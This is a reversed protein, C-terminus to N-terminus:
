KIQAYKGITDLALSITKKLERTDTCSQKLAHNYKCAIEDLEYVATPCHQRIDDLYNRGSTSQGRLRQTITQVPKTLSMTNCFNHDAGSSGLVEDAKTNRWFWENGYDSISSRWTPCKEAM